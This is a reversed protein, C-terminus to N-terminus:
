KNWDPRTAPQVASSGVTSQSLASVSPPSYYWTLLSHLLVSFWIMLKLVVSLSWTRQLQPATRVTLLDFLSVSGTDSYVVSALPSGVCVCMCVSQMFLDYVRMVFRCVRGRCVGVVDAGLYVCRLWVRKVKRRKGGRGEYKGRGEKRGEKRWM